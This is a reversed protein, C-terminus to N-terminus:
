FLCRDSRHLKTAALLRRQSLFLHFGGLRGFSVLAALPIKLSRLKKQILKTLAAPDAKGRTKKMVQGILFDVPEFLQNKKCDRGSDYCM